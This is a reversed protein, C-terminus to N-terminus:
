LYGFGLKFVRDFGAIEKIYKLDIYSRMDYFSTIENNQKM